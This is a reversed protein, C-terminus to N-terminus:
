VGPSMANGRGPSWPVGAADLADKLGAYEVDVLKSLQESVNQYLESAIRLSEGWSSHRAPTQQSPCPTDRTCHLLGLALVM